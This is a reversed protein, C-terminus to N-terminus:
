DLNDVLSGLHRAFAEAQDRRATFDFAMLNADDVGMLIRLIVESRDPGLEPSEEIRIDEVERLEIKTVTEDTPNLILLRETSPVLLRTAASIVDRRNRRRIGEMYTKWSLARLGWWFQEGPRGWAQVLEDDSSLPELFGRPQTIAPDV